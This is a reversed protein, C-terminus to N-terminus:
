GKVSSADRYRSVTVTWNVSFQKGPAYAGLWLNKFDSKEVSPFNELYLFDMDAGIVNGAAQNRFKPM